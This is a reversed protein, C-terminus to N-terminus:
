RVPWPADGDLPVALRVRRAGACGPGPTARQQKCDGRADRAGPFIASPSIGDKLAKEQWRTQPRQKLQKVAAVLRREGGPLQERPGKQDPGAKAPM